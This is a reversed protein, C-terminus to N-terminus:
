RNEKFSWMRRRCGRRGLGTGRCAGMTRPDVGRNFLTWFDNAFKDDIGENYAANDKLGRSHFFDYRQRKAEDGLVQYAENIAKLQEEGGHDDPNRDPHYKLALHRYAKKIDESSAEPTVGLTRYYDHAAM